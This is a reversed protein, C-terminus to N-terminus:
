NTTNLDIDPVDMISLWHLTYILSPVRCFYCKSNAYIFYLAGTRMHYQIIQPEVSCSWEMEDRQYRSKQSAVGQPSGQSCLSLARHTISTSALYSIRNNQSITLLLSTQWASFATILYCLIIGAFFVPLSLVWPLFSTSLM